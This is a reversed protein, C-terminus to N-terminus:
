IWDLDEAQQAVGELRCGNTICKFVSGYQDVKKGCGRCHPEKTINGKASEDNKDPRANLGGRVEAMEGKDIEFINSKISGGTEKRM